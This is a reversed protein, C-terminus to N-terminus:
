LNDRIHGSGRQYKAVEVYAWKSKTCESAWYKTSQIEWRISILKQLNDGVHGGGPQYEAVEVDAWKSKAGESAGYKTSQM